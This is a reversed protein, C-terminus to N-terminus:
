RSSNPTGLRYDAIACYKGEGTVNGSGAPPLSFLGIGEDAYLGAVILLVNIAAGLCV